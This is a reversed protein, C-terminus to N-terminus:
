SVGKNATSGTQKLETHQRADKSFDAYQLADQLSAPIFSLLTPHAGLCCDAPTLCSVQIQESCQPVM